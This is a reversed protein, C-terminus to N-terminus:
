STAPAGEAALPRGLMHEVVGNAAKLGAKAIELDGNAEELRTELEAVRTEADAARKRLEETQDAEPIQPAGAAAASDEPVIGISKALEIIREGADRLGIRAPDDPAANHTAAVAMRNQIKSKPNQIANSKRM